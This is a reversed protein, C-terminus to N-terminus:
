FAVTLNDVVNRVGLTGWASHCVLEREQWSHVTGSLTVDAGHVDVQIERADARARRRLAAEIESKVTGLAVKDAIGIQDSVGTVGLLHRVALVAAKRQYDWDVLGSLTVRGHEVLVKVTDRPLYTTWQLVNEAAHAIDSDSRSASGPLTVDIELAVGRVGAVRQAARQAEWKESYSAVHGALTVVGDTVEAGIQAANVSPEWRLEALVDQQLQSDTKM